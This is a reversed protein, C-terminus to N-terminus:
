ESFNKTVGFDVRMTTEFDNLSVYVASFIKSDRSVYMALRAWLLVRGQKLESFTLLGRKWLGGPAVNKAKKTSGTPSKVKSFPGRISIHQWTSRLVLLSSPAEHLFYTKSLNGGTMTWLARPWRNLTFLDIISIFYSTKSCFCTYFLNLYQSTSSLWSWLRTPVQGWIDGPLLPESNALETNTSIRYFMLVTFLSFWNYVKFSHIFSHTVLPMPSISQINLSLKWNFSLSLIWQLIVCPLQTKCLRDPTSLCFQNYM